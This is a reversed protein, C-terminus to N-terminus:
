KMSEMDTKLLAAFQVAIEAMAAAFAETTMEQMPQTFTRSFLKKRGQFPEIISYEVILVVQKTNIEAEFVMIEASVTYTKDNGSKPKARFALALYRELMSEPTQAWKNYEEIVLQNNKERFVMKNKYPGNIQFHSFSVYPGQENLIEPTGLDHYQVSRFPTPSFMCSSLIGASIILLFIWLFSFSKKLMM